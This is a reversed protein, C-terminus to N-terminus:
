GLPMKHLVPIKVVVATFITIIIIIIIFIMNIFIMIMLAITMIGNELILDILTRICNNRAM